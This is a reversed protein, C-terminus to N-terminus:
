FDDEVGHGFEALKEWGVGVLLRVLRVRVLADLLPTDPMPTTQARSEAACVYRCGGGLLALHRDSASSVSVSLWPCLPSCARWSAHWGKVPRSM